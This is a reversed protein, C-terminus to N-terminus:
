CVFLCCCVVVVVLQRVWAHWNRKHHGKQSSPWRAARNLLQVDVSAAVAGSMAAVHASSRRLPRPLSHAGYRLPTLLIGNGPLPPALHVVRGRDPVVGCGLQLEEAEVIFLGAPRPRVPQRGHGSQWFPYLPVGHLLDDIEGRQRSEVIKRRLHHSRKSFRACNKSVGKGTGSCTIATALIKSSSTGLRVGTRSGCSTSCSTSTGVIM